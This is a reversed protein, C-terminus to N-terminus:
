IMGLYIYIIIFSLGVDRPLSYGAILQIERAVMLTNNQYNIRTIFIYGKLVIWLLGM